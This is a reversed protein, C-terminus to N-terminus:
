EGKKLGFYSEPTKGHQARIIEIIQEAHSSRCCFTQSIKKLLQPNEKKNKKIYQLYPKNNIKKVGINFLADMAWSPIRGSYKNINIATLITEPQYSLIKNTMYANAVKIHEKTNETFLRYITDFPSEKKM